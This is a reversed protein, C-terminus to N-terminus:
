VAEVKNARLKGGRKGTGEGEKNTSRGKRKENVRKEQSSVIRRGEREKRLRELTGRGRKRKEPIILRFTTAPKKV